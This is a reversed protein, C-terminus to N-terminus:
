HWPTVPIVSISNQPSGEIVRDSYSLYILVNRRADYFRVVQLTKFLLSTSKKFVEDGDAKGNKIKEPLAIPGTQRCAISAESRDEAVGVTGSIGGTKARSLYCTAGAVDPDDFAEVVIKDNAGLLKFRTSVSGIDEALLPLSYSGIITATWILIGRKIWGPLNTQSVRKQHHKM